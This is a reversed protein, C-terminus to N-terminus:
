FEDFEDDDDYDDLDDWEDWDDYIDDDVISSEFDDDLIDDFVFDM